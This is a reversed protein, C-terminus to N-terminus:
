SIFYRQAVESARQRIERRLRVYRMRLTAPAVDLMRAIDDMSRGNLYYLTYLRRKDDDLQELVAEVYDTEDIQRDLISEIAANEDAPPDLDDISEDRILRKFSDRKAKRALNKATQFLFGGPNPHQELLATKQCATLFVDQTCDRAATESGLVSYLYRLVKEYYQECLSDFFDNKKSRKKPL